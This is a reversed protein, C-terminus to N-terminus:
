ATIDLGVRYTRTDGPAIKGPAQPQRGGSWSKAERAFYGGRGGGASGDADANGHNARGGAGNQQGDGQGAAASGGGSSAPQPPVAHFSITRGASPVGAQDLTQHLTPQDRQLAALTEPRDAIIDIQTLGSAAREIRVQVMGLEAPHLRVTMQQAGDVTKALTVLTPAIQAVPSSASASHTPPTAPTAVTVPSTLPLAAAGAFDVTDATLHTTSKRDTTVPAAGSTVPAAPQLSVAPPPPASDAATVASPLAPLEPPTTPGPNGTEPGALSTRSPPGSSDESGSSAIASGGAAAPRPTVSVQLAAAAAPLMEPAAVVGPGPAGVPAAVVPSSVTNAPEPLGAVASRPGSTASVRDAPGPIPRATVTRAPMLRPVVALSAAIAQNPPINSGSITVADAAPAPYDQTDSTPEPAAAPSALGTAPATPVDPRSTIGDPRNAVAISRGATPPRSALPPVMAGAALGAERTARSREALAPLAPGSVADASRGPATPSIAAAAPASGVASAASQGAAGSPAAGENAPTTVVVGAPLVPVLAQGGTGDGVPDPDATRHDKRGLAPKEEPPSQVPSAGPLATVPDMPPPPLVSPEGPEPGALNRAGAPELGGITQAAPDQSGDAGQLSRLVHAFADDGGAPTVAAAILPVAPAVSAPTIAIAAHL